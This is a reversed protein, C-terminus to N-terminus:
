NPFEIPFDSPAEPEVPVEVPESPVEPAEVPVQAETAMAVVVRLEEALQDVLGSNAEDETALQSMLYAIQADKAALAAKDTANDQLAQLVLALAARFVNGFVSLSDSTKSM